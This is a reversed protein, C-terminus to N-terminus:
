VRYEWVVAALLQISVCYVRFGFGVGVALAM